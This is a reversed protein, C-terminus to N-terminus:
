VAARQRVDAPVFLFREYDTNNEQQTKLQM